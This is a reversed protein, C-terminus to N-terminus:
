PSGVPDRPPHPDVHKIADITMGLFYGLLLSSLLGTTTAFINGAFSCVVYFVALATLAAAGSPGHQWDGKLAKVMVTVAIIVFAAMAIPGFKILLDVPTSDYGVVSAGNGSVGVGLPRHLAPGAIDLLNLRARVSPDNGFQSVDYRNANLISTGTGSLQGLLRDLGVVVAVGVVALLVVLKPRLTRLAVVLLGLGVGLLATRVGTLLLAFSSTAACAALFVSESPRLRESLRVVTVILAAGLVLAFPGPSESTGFVRVLGPAPQGISELRSAIMWTRDWSPLVYFQFIGYAGLVMGVAPLARYIQLWVDPLRGSAAALMVAFCGCQLVLAYLVGVSRNPAIAQAAVPVVILMATAIAPLGSFRYNPSKLRFAVFSLALLAIPVLLLPDYDIRGPSLLRRILGLLLITAVAFQLLTRSRLLPMTGAIALIIAYRLPLTAIFGAALAGVCGVALVMAEVGRARKTLDFWRPTSRQAVWPLSSM